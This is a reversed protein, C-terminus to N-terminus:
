DDSFHSHQDATASKSASLILNLHDLKTRDYIGVVKWVFGRYLSEGIKQTREPSLNSAKRSWTGDEENVTIKEKIIVQNDLTVLSTYCTNDALILAILNERKYKMKVEALHTKSLETSLNSYFM